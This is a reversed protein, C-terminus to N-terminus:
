GAMAGPSASANMAAQRSVYPRTIEPNIHMGGTLSAGAGCKASVALIAARLPSVFRDIPMLASKAIAIWNPAVCTRTPAAIKPCRYIEDTMGPRHSADFGSDRSEPDPALAGDRFSATADSRLGIRGARRLAGSSRRGGM